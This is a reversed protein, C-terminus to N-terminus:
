GSGGLDARLGILVERARALVPDRLPDVVASPRVDIDPEIGVGEVSRGSPLAYRAVTLALSSGDPLARPEQVSGKGFSRAGVLVARDRDHLAGAVIEAASATGGDILVVLPTTTDGSGAASLRQPQEGRRTYTVVSGGRLFASATEVAESLLGGPNGRLDLVIGAAQRARLDRAAARVQQGTGPRFAPVVILGVQDALLERTVTGEPVRARRLTLQRRVTGRRLQLTVPSGARGRLRATVADASQQSTPRGDVALLEDGAQVGARRAPSGAAVQVVLLRGATRRLWLGVGASTARTAGSEAWSGWPDGAASLMASMAARDLVDRGVPNLASDVIQEAADDLVGDSSASPTSGSGAVVGLSFTGALVASALLALGLRRTLSRARPTM